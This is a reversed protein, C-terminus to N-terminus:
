CWLLEVTEISGILIMDHSQLVIEHKLTMKADHKLKKPDIYKLQNTHISITTKSEVGDMGDCLIKKLTKKDKSFSVDDV